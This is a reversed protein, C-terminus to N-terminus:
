NLNLNQWMINGISVANNFEDEGLKMDKYPNKKFFKTIGQLEQTVIDSDLVNYNKALNYLESREGRGAAM